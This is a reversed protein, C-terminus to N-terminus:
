EDFPGVVPKPRGGRARSLCPEEGAARTHRPIVGACAPFVLHGEAVEDDAPSSGRAHPFSSITATASISPSPHGGRPRSLPPRTRRGRSPDPIVGACAPLLGDGARRPVCPPSSGRAPPSSICRPALRASAPSSSATPNGIRFRIPHGGRTRPPRRWRARFRIGAPIVGAVASFRIGFGVARSCCRIVGARDPFVRPRATRWAQGHSSGRVPPSSPPSAPATTTPRSYRAPSCTGPVVGAHAPLVQPDEAGAARDPSSGRM